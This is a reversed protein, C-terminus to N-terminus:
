DRDKAVQPMPIVTGIQHATAKRIAIGTATGGTFSVGAIHPSAALAAGTTAGDGFVFNLVGHPLDSQEHILSALVSRNTKSQLLPLSLIRV